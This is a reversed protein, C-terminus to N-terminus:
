NRDKATRDITQKTLISKCVAFFYQPL